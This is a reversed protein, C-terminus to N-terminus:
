CVVDAGPLHFDPEDEGRGRNRTTGVEGKSPSPSKLRLPLSIKSSPSTTKRRKVVPSSSSPNVIAELGKVDYGFHILLEETAKLLMKQYEKADYTDDPGVLPFPRSKGEEKSRADHDQL